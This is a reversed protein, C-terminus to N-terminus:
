TPLKRKIARRVLLTAAIAAVMMAFLIQAPFEPIPTNSRELVFNINRVGGDSIAVTFNQSKYGQAYVTVNYTGGPVYMGYEGNGASHTVLSLQQNSATVDAGDITTLDGYMTYGYVTGQIRGGTQVPPLHSQASVTGVGLMLMVLVIATAVKFAAVKM